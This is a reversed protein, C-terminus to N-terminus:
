GSIGDEITQYTPFFNGAQPKGGVTVTPNLHVSSGKFKTNESGQRKM